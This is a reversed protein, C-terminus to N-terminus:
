SRAGIHPRPAVARTEWHGRLPGTGAYARRAAHALFGSTTPLGLRRCARDYRALPLCIEGLMDLTVPAGVRCSVTPRPRRWRGAVSRQVGRYGMYRWLRRPPTISRATPRSPASATSSVSSSSPGETFTGHDRKCATNYAHTLEIGRLMVQYMESSSTGTGDKIGSDLIQWSQFWPRGEPEFLFPYPLELQYAAATQTEGAHRHRRPWQRAM